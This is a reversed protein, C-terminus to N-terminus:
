SRAPGHPPVAATGSTNPTQKPRRPSTNAPNRSLLTHASPSSPILLPTPFYFPPRPTLPFAHQLHPLYALISPSPLPLPVLFLLATTLTSLHPSHPPSLHPSQPLPSLLPPRHPTLQLAPLSFPHLLFLSLPHLAILPSSLSLRFVFPRPFPRYSLHSSSLLPLPLPSSSAPHPSSHCFSSRPSPRSSSPM